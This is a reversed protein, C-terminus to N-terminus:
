LFSQGYYKIEAEKERDLIIPARYLYQYGRNRENDFYYSDRHWHGCWWQKCIIREDIEDNLIAVEDRLQSSESISGSFAKKNISNQGTHALVYDFTNDKKLLKFIDKKEDESWYEEKWWSIGPIRMDLDISLAGGLVLFKFGNITYIKGRKLYAVFPSSNIQYVMEGIGIDTEPLDRM